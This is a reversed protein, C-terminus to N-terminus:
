APAPAWHEVPRVKVPKPMRLKVRFPHHKRRPEDDRGGTLADDILWAILAWQAVLVPLVHGVTLAGATIGIIHLTQLGMVALRDAHALRGIPRSVHRGRGRHPLPCIFLLGLVLFAGVPYLAEIM